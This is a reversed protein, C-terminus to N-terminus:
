GIQHNIFQKIKFLHSQLAVDKLLLATLKLKNPPFNKSCSWYDPSSKRQIIPNPIQRQKAGQGIRSSHRAGTNDDGVSSLGAMVTNDAIIERDTGFLDSDDDDYVDLFIEFIEMTM